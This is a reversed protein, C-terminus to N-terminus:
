LDSAMNQPKYPDPVKLGALLKVELSEMEEAEKPELHDYGRLHLVGHIVMHAWHHWLRKGQEVSERQVVPACVVLDGLPLPVIDEDLGEPVEFPFSLVNTPGAKGRYAENLQASEAEDVVRITLEVPESVDQLATSSWAMLEAPSPLDTAMSAQQFDLTVGNEKLASM